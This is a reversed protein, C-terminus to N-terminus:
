GLVRVAVVRQGTVGFHRSPQTQPACLQSSDKRDQAATTELALAHLVFIKRVSSRSWNTIVAQYLDANSIYVM